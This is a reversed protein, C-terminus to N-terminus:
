EKSNYLVCTLRHPACSIKLYCKKIQQGCGLKFGKEKLGIQSVVRFLAVLCCLSHATILYKPEQLLVLKHDERGSAV